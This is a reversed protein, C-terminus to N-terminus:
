LSMSRRQKILLGLFFPGGIMSMILGIPLEAPAVIIRTFIDAFMLLSAGFIISSPLLQEHNAGLLMRMMHPVVLGVFGIVGSMAVATGVILSTLAIISRKIFTVNYGIHSAVSEGLLFCNLARRFTFLVFSSPLIILSALMIQSWDSKSVSGLNWFTLDRLQNDDSLYSLLGIGAGCVANIAVGALLLLATDTRGKYSAIKFAVITALLGGAFAFLPLAIAQINATNNEGRESILGLNIYLSPGLVIIFIAGLASGSSVGILSPDALPNRFLGQTCVGAAALGSGVLIATAIRPLRLDTIVYQNLSFTEPNEILGFYQALLAWVDSPSVSVAGVLLSGTLACIFFALLTSYILTKKMM